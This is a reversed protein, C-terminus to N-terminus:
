RPLSTWAGLAVPSREVVEVPPRATRRKFAALTFDSEPPIRRHSAYPMSTSQRAPRATAVTVRHNGYSVEYVGLALASAFMLAAAVSAPGPLVPQNTLSEALRGRLRRRFDASPEIADQLKLVEVGRSVSRHYRTCHPCASLHLELALILEQDVGVRDRFASYHSLFESCHM